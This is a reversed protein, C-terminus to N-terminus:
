LKFYVGTGLGVNDFFTRSSGITLDSLGKNYITTFNFGWDRGMSLNVGAEGFLSIYHGQLNSADESHLLFEDIMITQDYLQMRMDSCYHEIVNLSIGLGGYVSIRDTLDFRSRVGANIGFVRISQDVYTHNLISEGSQFNYNSVDISTFNNHMGLPTAIAIDTSYMMNGSSNVYELDDNYIVQDHLESQNRISAYSLGGTFSVYKSLPFEAKLNLAQSSSLDGYKGLDYDVAPLNDMRAWSFYRSTTLSLLVGRDTQSKNSQNTEAFEVDVQEESKNFDIFSQKFPLYAVSEFSRNQIDSGVSQLYTFSRNLFSVPLAIHNKRSNYSGNRVFFQPGRGDVDSKNVQLLDEGRTMKELHANEAVIVKEVTETNKVSAVSNNEVSKELQEIRKNLGNIHNNILVATLLLLLSAMVVLIIRRRRKRRELKMSAIELMADDFIRNPPINWYGDGSNTDKLKSQFIKSLDNHSQERM